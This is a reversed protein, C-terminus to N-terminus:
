EDAVEELPAALVRLRHAHTAQTRHYRATLPNPKRALHTEAVKVAHQTHDLLDSAHERIKTRADAIQQRHAQLRALAKVLDERDETAGM